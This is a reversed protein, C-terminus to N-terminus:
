DCGTDAPLEEFLKQFIYSKLQEEEEVQLMVMNKMKLYEPSFEKEGEECVILLTLGPEIWDQTMLTDKILTTKGSDLFGTCIFIPTTGM